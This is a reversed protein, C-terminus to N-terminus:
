HVARRLAECLELAVKEVLRLLVRLEHKRGKCVIVFRLRREVPDAVEVLCRLRSRAPSGLPVVAKVSVLRKEDGVRIAVAAMGISTPIKAVFSNVFIADQMVLMCLRRLAHGVCTRAAHKLQQTM